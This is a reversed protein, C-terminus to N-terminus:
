RHCFWRCTGWGFQNCYHCVRPRPRYCPRRYCPRPRYPRCHWRCPHWVATARLNGGQGATGEEPSGQIVLLAGSDTSGVAVPASSWGQFCADDTCNAALKGGAFLELGGGGGTVPQEEDGAGTGDEKGESSDQLEGLGIGVSAGHEVTSNATVYFCGACGRSCNLVEGEPLLWFGGSVPLTVEVEKGAPITYNSFCNALVVSDTANNLVNIGVGGLSAEWKDLSRVPQTGNQHGTAAVVPSLAALRIAAQIARM